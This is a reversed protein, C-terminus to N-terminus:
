YLLASTGLAFSVGPLVRSSTLETVEGGAEVLEIDPGGASTEVAMSRGGTIPYGRPAEPDGFVTSIKFTSVDFFSSVSATLPIRPGVGGLDSEWGLTGPGVESSVRMACTVARKSVM